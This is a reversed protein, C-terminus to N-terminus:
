GEPHRGSVSLRALTSLAFVLMLLIRLVYFTSHVWPYSSEMSVKWTFSLVCLSIVVEKIILDGPAKLIASFSIDSLQYSRFIEIIVMSVAVVFMGIFSKGVLDSLSPFLLLTLAAIGMHATVFIRLTKM